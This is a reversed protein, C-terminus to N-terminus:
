REHSAGLTRRLRALARVWLKEVSEVTRQMREAVQAFPLGELHRLLIVERYHAPLLQLADALQVAAERHVVQESPSKISAALDRTMVGSANSLEVALTRELRVDRRKTGLYRRVHNAILAALISRLWGMFEAETTGRFNPFHRYAELMTEQVLDSADAKGRLRRSIQTHALVALYKRYVALVGGLAEADGGRALGLLQEPNVDAQNAQNITMRYLVKESTAPGIERKACEHPRIDGIGFYGEALFKAM